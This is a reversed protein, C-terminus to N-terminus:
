ASEGGDAVLAESSATSTPSQEQDDDEPVSEARKKDRLRELGATSQFPGAEDIMQQYDEATRPAVRPRYPVQGRIREEREGERELYSERQELVQIVAERPGREIRREVAIWARVVPISDIGAVREEFMRRGTHDTHDEGYEVLPRDLFKAPDEGLDDRIRPFEERDRSTHGSQATSPV